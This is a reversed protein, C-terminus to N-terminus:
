EFRDSFIADEPTILRWPQNSFQSTNGSADTATAVLYTSTDVPQNVSLTGTRFEFAASIPYVMSGIFTKGQPSSGDTLYFDITLPYDANAPTTQVRVRYNIEAAGADYETAAADFDPYNMLKNPGSAAGGIDLEDMGLDIGRTGAPGNSYISNGRIVNGTSNDDAWAFSIAKDNHAIVNGNGNGPLWTAPNIVDSLKYGVQNGTANSAPANGFVIGVKNGMPQGNSHLGVLDGAIMVDSAGQRLNIGHSTNNVIVNGGGGYGIWVRSDAGYVSVGGVNGLSAGSADTGIYNNRIAVLGNGSSFVWVGTGNNGIVNADAIDQSGLQGPGNFDVGTNNDTIRNRRIFGGSGLVYIGRSNYAIRNGVILNPPSTGGSATIHIGSSMGLDEGDLNTG